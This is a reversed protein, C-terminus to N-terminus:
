ELTPLFLKYGQRQPVLLALGIRGFFLKWVIVM